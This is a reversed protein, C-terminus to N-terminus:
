QIRYIDNNIIISAPFRKIPPEVVTPVTGFTQEFTIPSKKNWYNKDIEQSWVGAFYGEVPTGQQWITPIEDWGGPVKVLSAYILDIYAAIWLPFKTFWRRQAISAWKINGTFFYYGTYLFIKHDPYGSVQQLENFFRYYSDGDTWGGTEVDGCIFGEGPDNKLLNWYFRAQSEPSSDKDCFWYSVRPLQAIKANEWSVKFESDAYTDQGARIVVAKAGARNKMLEFDIARQQEPPLLHGYQDRRIVQYFSVDYFPEGIEFDM